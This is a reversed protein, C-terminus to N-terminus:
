GPAPPPSSRRTGSGRRGPRDRRTPDATRVALEARHPYILRGNQRQHPGNLRGFCFLKFHSGGGAGYGREHLFASYDPVSRMLHYLMGQVRTQYAMPLTLSDTRFHLQFLMFVGGTATDSPM